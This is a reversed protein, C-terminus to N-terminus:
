WFGMTAFLSTAEDERFADLHAPRSTDGQLLVPSGVRARVGHGVEELARRSTFLALTRGGAAEVLAALEDVMRPECAPDRREPLHSPVYLLAHRPYDFPSPIEVRSRHSPDLGLRDE